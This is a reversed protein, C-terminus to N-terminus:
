PALIVVLQFHRGVQRMSVGARTFREEEVFKRARSPLEHLQIIRRALYYSPYRRKYLIRDRDKDIRDRGRPMTKGCIGEAERSLAPDHALPPLNEERRLENLNVLIELSGTSPRFVGDERISAPRIEEPEEITEVFEGDRPRLEDRGTQEAFSEMQERVGESGLDAMELQRVMEERNGLAGQAQALALHLEPDGPLLDSAPSLVKLAESPKGDELLLESLSYRAAVNDPQIELIRNYADLAKQRDDEQLAASARKFLMVPDDPQGEAEDEFLPQVDDATLPSPAVLFREAENDAMMRTYMSFGIMGVVGAAILTAVV